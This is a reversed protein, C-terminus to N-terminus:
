LFVPVAFYMVCEIITSVVWNRSESYQWFSGNTHLMIVAFCSFVNLFTIYSKKNM